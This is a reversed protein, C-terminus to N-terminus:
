TAAASTAAPAVTETVTRLGAGPPPLEFAALKVMALGDGVRAVIKGDLAGAPASAKMSVTLPVLKTGPEVTSQFPLLRVVVNKLLVCNCACIMAASRDEAPWAVTVTTLEGGPPPLELAAVKVM